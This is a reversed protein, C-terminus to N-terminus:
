GTRITSATKMVPEPVAVVSSDTDDIARDLGQLLGVPDRFRYEELHSDCFRCACACGDIPSLRVRDAHTMVGDPQAGGLYGPLPLPRVCFRDGEAELVYGEGGNWDLVAAPKDCFWEDVPANVYVSGAMVLTIGGTTAYERISLPRDGRSTLQDRAADTVALGRGLLELKLRQSTSLM